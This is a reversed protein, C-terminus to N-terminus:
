TDQCPQPITAEFFSPPILSAADADCFISVAPHDQLSSAPFGPSVQGTALRRLQESKRKGSVLLFIRRSGLIDDMGLTLGYDVQGKRQDLMSHALSVPSLRAVHPGSQFHHAPENFGLHGNEGLGLVQIDVPGNVSLWDAVRKCEAEADAPHSEWGFYREPPVELQNLLAHRLFYECTAPDDMALGGWEDLKMWRLQAFLDPEELAHAVLLEYTWKPSLGTALCILSDRRARIEHVLRKCAGASMSEEDAYLRWEWTNKLGGVPESESSSAM